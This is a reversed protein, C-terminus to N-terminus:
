FATYNTNIADGHRMTVCGRYCFVIKINPNMGKKDTEEQYKQWSIQTSKKNLELVKLVESSAEEDISFRNTFLKGIKFPPEFERDTPEIFLVIKQM